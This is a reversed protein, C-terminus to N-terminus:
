DAIEHVSFCIVMQFVGGRVNYLKSNAINCCKEKRDDFILFFREVIHKFCVTENVYLASKYTTTFFIRIERLLFDDNGVSCLSTGSGFQWDNKNHM